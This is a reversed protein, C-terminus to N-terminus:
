PRWFPKRMERELDARTLGMDRLRHDEMTMLQHRQSAREQWLLLRDLIASLLSRARGSPLVGATTTPALALPRSTTLLPTQTTMITGGKKSRGCRGVNPSRAPKAHRREADPWRDPPAKRAACNERLRRPRAARARIDAARGRAGPGRTDVHARQNRASCHFFM